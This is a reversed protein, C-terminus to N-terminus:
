IGTSGFGNSGREGDGISDTNILEVVEGASVPCLVAQAIKSGVEVPYGQGSTNFIIVKIEGTYGQDVTGPSNLVMLGHNLALGSKSRVQIEYGKPIELKLGTPIIMRSMPPIIAQTTSHLDFGSDSPYNYKPDVASEHIKEYVLKQKPKEIKFNKELEKLNVGDIEEVEMHATSEKLSDELEKLLKQFEKELEEAYNM